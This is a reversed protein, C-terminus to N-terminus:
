LLALRATWFSRFADALADEPDGTADVACRVDADAGVDDLVTHEGVLFLREADCAALADECDAVHEAIQADRRREFRGQSFGGKSHEGMVDASFGEFSVREDGEYVGLAFTDARVLALAFRGTPRFWEGEVRFGDGWEVFPEPAVPPTLAVSVLGEDDACVLCPAAREVLGAREGLLERVPEPAREEVMATLAGEPETEVSRLRALLERLREGRLESRGRFGIEPGEGEAREVRDELEAVRDALRNAREAADQRATTAEARREREAALQARLSDAEAELEAVREKLDARGLLEDLM